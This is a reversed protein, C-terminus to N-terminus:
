EPLGEIKSSLEKLKQEVWQREEATISQTRPLERVIVDVASQAHVRARRAHPINGMALETQGLDAFTIGMEAETKIFEIRRRESEAQLELFREIRADAM